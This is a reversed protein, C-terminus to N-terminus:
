VIPQTKLIQEDRERIRGIFRGTLEITLADLILEAPCSAHRAVGAVDAEIADAMQLIRVNWQECVYLQLRARNPQDATHTKATAMTPQRAGDGAHFPVQFKFGDFLLKWPGTKVTEIEFSPSYRYSSPLDGNVKRQLPFSLGEPSFRV